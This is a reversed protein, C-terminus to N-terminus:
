PNQKATTLTFSGWEGQRFSTLNISSVQFKSTLVCVYTTESVISELVLAESTKNIGANEIYLILM